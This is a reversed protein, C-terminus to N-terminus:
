GTGPAMLPGRALCMRALLSMGLATLRTMTGATPPAVPPTEPPVLPSSLRSVTGSMANPEGPGPAMLPGRALCMRAMM